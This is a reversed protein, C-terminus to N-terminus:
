PAQPSAPLPLRALDPLIENDVPHVRTRFKLACHGGRVRVVCLPTGACAHRLYETMRAFGFATVDLGPALSRLRESIVAVREGERSLLGRTLHHEQYEALLQRTTILVAELDGTAASQATSLDHDSAGGAELVPTKNPQSGAVGTRELLWAALTRYAAIEAPAGAREVETITRALHAHVKRLVSARLFLRRGSNQEIERLGLWLEFQMTNLGSDTAPIPYVIEPLLSLELLSVRAMWDSPAHLGCLSASGLFRILPVKAIHGATDYRRATEALREQLGRLVIRDRMPAPLALAALRLGRALGEDSATAVHKRHWTDGCIAELFGPLLGDFDPPPHAALWVMQRVFADYSAPFDRRNARRLALSALPAELDSRGAAASREAVALLGWLAQDRSVNRWAAVNVTAFLPTLVAYDPKTCLEALARCSRLSPGAPVKSLSTPLPQPGHLLKWLLGKPREAERALPLLKVREGPTTRGVLAELDAPAAELAECFPGTRGGTDRVLTLFRIVDLPLARFAATAFTGLDARWADLHGTVDVGAARAAAALRVFFGLRVQNPGASLQRLREDLAAAVPGIDRGAARALTFYVPVDHPTSLLFSVLRVPDRELVSWWAPLARKEERAMSLLDVAVSLPGQRLRSVFLEAQGDLASWLPATDVGDQRAARMFRGVQDPAVRTAWKAFEDTRSEFGNWVRLSAHGHRLAADLFAAVDSPEAQLACDALQEPAAALARWLSQVDHGAAQSRELLETVERLSAQPGHRVLDESRDVVVSWFPRMDRLQAHGVDFLAAVDRLSSRGAPDFLEARRVELARWLAEPDRGAAQARELLAAMRRLPVSTAVAAVRDALREVTTWFSELAQGEGHAIDFFRKMEHPPRRLLGEAIRDAEGGLMQWLPATDHGDLRAHQLYVAIKVPAARAACHRLLDPNDEFARWISSLNHGHRAAWAVFATLDKPGAELLCRVLEELREEVARWFGEGRGANGAVDLFAVLDALRSSQRSGRKPYSAGLMAEALQDRSRELRTWLWEVNQRDANAASLFQGIQDPRTRLVHQTFREADNELASWLVKSREGLAVRAGRLVDRVQWLYSTAARAAFAVPAAALGDWLRALLAPQRAEQAARCLALFWVLPTGAIRELVGAPESAIRAMLEDRRRSTADREFRNLLSAATSVHRVGAELLSQEEFLAQAEADRRPQSGLGNHAALILRGWGPQRLSFWEHDRLTGFSRRVVLRQWVAAGPEVSGDHLLELDQPHPLGEMQVGLELDQAGFVSLCLLNDLTEPNLPRGSDRLWNRRVWAGAADPPCSWDGLRFRGLSETAAVCFASLAAKYDRHWAALVEAPPTPLPPLIQGPIREYVHGVINWLDQPTPAVEVAPGLPGKLLDALPDPPDSSVEPRSRATGIILLHNRRPREKWAEFVDLALQPDHHVNDLILLAGPGVRGVAALVADADDGGLEAFDVYLASRDRYDRSTAIRLALTTKGVSAVDAVLACGGEQLRRVVQGDAALPPVKGERYEDHSPLMTHRRDDSGKRFLKFREDIKKFPKEDGRRAVPLFNQRLFGILVEAAARAAFGRFGHGRTPEGFDMVGKVVLWRRQSAWATFGIVSAEMDFGRVLRQTDSLHKWIDVNRVLSAGTGLPGVHVDPAGARTGADPHTALWPADAAIGFSRAPQVWEADLQYTTVDPRFTPQGGPITNVQEGVDYRYVREAIIVDGLKTWDPRGACVGCMAFCSPELDENLVALAHQAAEVGMYLARALAVRLAGGSPTEFDCRWVPYQPRVDIQRWAEIAGQRVERVAADEGDAATIILVDVQEKAM